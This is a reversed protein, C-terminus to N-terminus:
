DANREASKGSSEGVFAGHMIRERLYQSFMDYIHAPLVQPYTMLVLPHGAYEAHYPPHIHAFPNEVFGCSEYFGKRRKSIADEPPDIELIICKRKEQLLSLAKRGYQQNRLEPCICLHEIYLFDETEWCLMLGVFLTKDYILGFRYSSDQLIQEQSLAERQEHYPFSAQYLELARQYMPHARETIYEFNM